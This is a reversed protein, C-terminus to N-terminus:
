VQRPTPLLQYASTLTSVILSHLTTSLCDRPLQAVEGLGSFVAECLPLVDDSVDFDAAAAAAPQLHHFPETLCHEVFCQIVDDSMHQCLTALSGFMRQKSATQVLRWVCARANVIQKVVTM